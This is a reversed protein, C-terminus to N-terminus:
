TRAHYVICRDLYLLKGRWFEDDPYSNRWVRPDRKVLLLYDRKRWILRLKGLCRDILMVGGRWDFSGVKELVVQNREQVGESGWVAERCTWDRRKLGVWDGTPRKRRKERMSLLYEKEEEPMGM